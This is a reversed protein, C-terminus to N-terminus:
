REFSKKFLAFFTYPDLVEFNFDPHKRRLIALADTITTPNVWVIRFFYFGPVQNGRTAVAEAMVDATKEASPAENADNILELIPMGKWIQPAVPRGSATHMDWIITAYGDPAFQQFADKVEPTPQDWDLVMPAITMDAERFFRRNHQVFLPLYERRIRNPNMYGAASADSTFTDAPSATSYFYAILDPYTELLNPNIGWALPIKGRDANQWHKPLFDYLVYASDYDAMLICLYTKNELALPKAGRHQKLTARPAQSHLSQNFCDSSSTNQYVNYPSILHVTEWETPVPEHASQHGGYNSYKTFVFFGTMETMQRGATQRLVEELILQYTQLDLGLRQGPDDAPREDGWPSLDFVFSRNKVAWDRTVVYGIDGRARTAFSDEFLCLLHPSCRGKALYERIAWRYADNKKSGTEAGIFRGRLDHLVTLGWRTLHRGALEPSLAVADEAGAIITAVNVSAPVAPDWIVAGKLRSGALRVLADLDALPKRERGELWRGDKALLDLWFQPRSNKRSLVYVEPSGRNILGQLCAVALAEDYSAPTDDHTLTYTHLPQGAPNAKMEAARGTIAPGISGALALVCSIVWHARRATTFSPKSM